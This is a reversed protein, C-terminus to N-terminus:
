IMCELVFFTFSLTQILANLADAGPTIFMVKANTGPMVVEVENEFGFNKLYNFTEKYEPNAFTLM